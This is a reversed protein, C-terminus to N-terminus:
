LKDTTKLPEEGDYFSFSQVKRSLVPVSMVNIATLGDLFYFYFIFTLIPEQSFGM